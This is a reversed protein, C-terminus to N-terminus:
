PTFQVPIEVGILEAPPPPFPAASKIAERTLDDYVPDGSSKAINLQVVDGKESLTMHFIVEIKTQSYNYVDPLHYRLKVMKKFVSLYGKTDGSSAGAPGAAQVPVGGAKNAAAIIEELKSKAQPAEATPATKGAKQLAEIAKRKALEKADIQQKEPDDPIPIPPPAEKPTEEPPKKPPEPPPPPLAEPPPVIKPKEPEPEKPEPTKTEPEKPTPVPDERPPTAEPTMHKPLQPLLQQSVKVEPAVTATPINAVPATPVSADTVIDADMSWEDTIIPARPAFKLASLVFVVGHVLVSALVFWRLLRTEV